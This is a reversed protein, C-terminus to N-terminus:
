GGLSKSDGIMEYVALQASRGGEVMMATAQSAQKAIPAIPAVTYSSSGLM